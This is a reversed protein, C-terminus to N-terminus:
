FFDFADCGAMSDYNFRDYHQQLKSAWQDLSDGKSCRQCGLFVIHQELIGACEVNRGITGANTEDLIQPDTSACSSAPTGPNYHLNNTTMQDRNVVYIQGEKGAEVLIDPYTGPQEPLLLVGGSGLDKDNGDLCAQDSPTFYDLLSLIADTTGLKLITDGVETAPVNTTDFDGNGSAIFINGSADAAIGAGSTWFGGLGGNPTTVFVSEQTFTASDYAFLWGHYPSLDCHSGFALYIVGNSLLLGSRQNEYLPDFTLQGGSSGDGTGSVTATVLVPGQSEEAGTALAIAHLRQFYSSGNTSAAEVFITGSSPDVVPTGTIGILPQLNSCSSIPTTATTWPTEGSSAGHAADVLSM